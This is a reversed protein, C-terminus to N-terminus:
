GHEAVGLIATRLRTMGRTIHTGVASASIDLATAVEAYTWDCAHVLWVTQRQMPSLSALAPVLAPEVDPISSAEVPPLDPVGRRRRGSNVAIRYLYGHPNEMNAVRERHEWAWALAEGIADPAADVGVAAPLARRLRATVEAAFEDFELDVTM